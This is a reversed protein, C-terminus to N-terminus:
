IMGLKRLRKKDILISQAKQVARNIVGPDLKFNIRQRDYKNEEIVLPISHIEDVLNTLVEEETVEPTKM